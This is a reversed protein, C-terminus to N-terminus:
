SGSAQAGALGRKTLVDQTLDITGSFTYVNSGAATESFSGVWPNVWGPQTNFRKLFDSITSTGLAQGGLSIQGVIKTGPTSGTATTTSSGVSLSLNTLYANTPMSSSIEELLTSFPAENAFAQQLISEREIAKQQIAEYKQLSAVEHSLALNQDQQATIQDNVSSLHGRQLIYIFLVLGVLVLGGGIVIM